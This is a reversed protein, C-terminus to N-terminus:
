ANEIQSRRRDDDVFFTECSYRSANAHLIRTASIQLVALKMLIVKTTDSVPALSTATLRDGSPNTHPWIVLDIVVPTTISVNQQYYPTSKIECLRRIDRYQTCFIRFFVVSQPQEKRWIKLCQQEHGDGINFVTSRFPFSPTCYIAKRLFARM